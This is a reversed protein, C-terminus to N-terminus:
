GWHCTDALYGFLESRTRESTTVVLAGARKPTTVNLSFHTGKKDDAVSHQDCRSQVVAIDVTTPDDTGSIALDLPLTETVTGTAPNLLSLLPTDDISHLTLESGTGTPEITLTLIAAERGAIIARELPTDAFTLRAIGETDRALCDQLNIAALQNYRDIPEVTATGQTDAHEFEITVSPTTSSAECDPAALPVRFDITRGPDITTPLRDYTMPEAFAPSALQLGTVTLETRSENTVSIEYKRESADLRSQYITVSVGGPLTAPTPDPADVVGCGTLALTATIVGCAVATARRRRQRM